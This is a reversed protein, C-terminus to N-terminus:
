IVAIAGSRPLAVYAHTNTLAVRTPQDGAALKVARTTLQEAGLTVVHVAEGMDDSAAAFAGDPSVALLGTELPRAAIANTKSAPHVPLVPQPGLDTRCGSAVVLLPLLACSVWGSGISHKM